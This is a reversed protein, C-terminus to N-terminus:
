FQFKKIFLLFQLCLSNFGPCKLCQTFYEVVPGCCFRTDIHYACVYIYSVMGILLVKKMKGLDEKMKKKGQRQKGKQKGGRERRKSLIEAEASQTKHRDKNVERQTSRTKKTEGRL